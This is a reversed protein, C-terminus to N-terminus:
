APTLLWHEVADALREELFGSFGEDGFERDVHNALGDTGVELVLWRGDAGQILDACGFSGLLGTVKLARNAAAAADHPAERECRYRAGRAHAVWPSPEVDDSFSREVWGFVEGGACFVRSVSPRELRVFQQVIFPHPWDPPLVTEAEILRHGGAGCSTPYKLCWERESSAVFSQVESWDQILHTEPIPVGTQTFTTALLRKDAAQQIASLPVFLSSPNLSEPEDHFLLYNRERPEASVELDLVKSLREALGAFAWVGAGQNM